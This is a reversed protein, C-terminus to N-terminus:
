EIQEEVVDFRKLWGRKWFFFLSSFGIMALVGLCIFYGWKTSLEPMYEFNMGYIGVIFTLPVFISSIITLIKMIENTQNSISSLYVDMLSSSLERYSEIIDLLQIIHDYCDRLYVEVKSGMFNSSSRMLTTIVSQQPWIARRLALLERRLKYIKPLTKRNPSIIAEDELKEIRESYEELVPFFSDIMVDLLLYTLYDVGLSRIKGKDKELRTRIFDFYDKNHGEQFTLLYNEGLILSIQEFSFGDEEPNSTVLNFIIVLQDDYYEVKPRQPVNVIDELLLPHFNFIEGIQKLTKETGLGQIDLWLSDASTIYHPLENPSINVKKAVQKEDYNTLILQSPVADEEICLTGPESGPKDFFYEFYDEREESENTVNSNLNSTQTM